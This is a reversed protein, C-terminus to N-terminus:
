GSALVRRLGNQLFCTAMKAEPIYISLKDLREKKAM